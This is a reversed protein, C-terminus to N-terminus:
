KKNCYYKDTKLFIDHGILINTESMVMTNYKLIKM